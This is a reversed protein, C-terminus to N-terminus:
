EALRIQSCPPGPRESDISKQSTTPSESVKADPQHSPRRVPIRKGGLRRILKTKLRSLGSDHEQQDMVFGGTLAYGSSRTRLSEARVGLWKRTPRRPTCPGHRTMQTLLRGNVDIRWRSSLASAVHLLALDKSRVDVRVHRPSSRLRGHLCRARVCIPSVYSYACPQSQCRKRRCIRSRLLTRLAVLYRAALM